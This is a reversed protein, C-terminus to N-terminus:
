CNDIKFAFQDAKQLVPCQAGPSSAASGSYLVILLLSHTEGLGPTCRRNEDHSSCVSTTPDGGLVRPETGGCAILMLMPSENIAEVLGHYLASRLLRNAGPSLVGLELNGKLFIRFLQDPEARTRPM